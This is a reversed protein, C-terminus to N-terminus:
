MRPMSGEGNTASHHVPRQMMADSESMSMSCGYPKKMAPRIDFRQMDTRSWEIRGDRDLNGLSGGQKLASLKRM